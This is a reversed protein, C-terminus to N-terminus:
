KSAPQWATSSDQSRSVTALHLQYHAGRAVAADEGHEGRVAGAAGWLRGSEDARGLLASAAALGALCLVTSIALHAGTALSERYWDRAQDADGEDLACDALGHLSSAIGLLHDHERYYDLGEAILIRARAPTGASRALAGLNILTMGYGRADRHRRMLRLAEARRGLHMLLHALEFPEGDARISPLSREFLETARVEDGLDYWYRLGSWWCARALSLADVHDARALAEEFWYVGERPHQEWEGSSSVLMELARAVDRELLDSLAARINDLEVAGRQRAESPSRAGELGIEAAAALFYDSHKLRVQDAEPSADLRELAFGRITELMWYRPESDSGSRKRLLSKDLLSQLVDPDADCVTEAADYTCGGAFVALRRFLTQEGDTLLDHSWEMTARLTEQRPDADRGGRLLDLRQDLREVLQEPSFLTTRAAALEIALPLQDLRKCLADVGRTWMFDPDLARARAVFLAIGDREELSATPYVHEGDLRLRERSTVLVTSGDLDRLTAIAEAIDPLLHEANDLLVLLRKGDLERALTQGLDSGPEERVGLVGAVTLLVLARDRLSALPVWWLGDPFAQASDAAAQLALRTKGTGGPGTLTLLQVDERTLLEVVEALAAERGLFPTAPVPLNAQHLKREVQPTSVTQAELGEDQNLIAKELRQLAGSPEIGLEDVLARRAAQYAALAEAQRGSRYLALM